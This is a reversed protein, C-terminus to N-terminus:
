VKGMGGILKNVSDPWLQQRFDEEGRDTNASDVKICLRVLYVKDIRLGRDFNKGLM